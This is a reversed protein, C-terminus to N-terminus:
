LVMGYPGVTAIGMQNKELIIRLGRFLIVIELYSVPFSIQRTTGQYRKVFSEPVNPVLLVYSM